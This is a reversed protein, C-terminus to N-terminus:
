RGNASPLRKLLFPVAVESLSPCFIVGSAAHQHRQNHVSSFTLHSWRDNSASTRRSIGLRGDKPVAEQGVASAQGECWGPFETVKTFNVMSDEHNFLKSVGAM